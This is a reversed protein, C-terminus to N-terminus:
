LMNDLYYDDTVYASLNLDSPSEDILLPEDGTFQYLYSNDIHYSVDVPYCTEGQEFYLIPAYQEAINEDSQAVGGIAGLFLFSILLPVVILIRYVGFFNGRKFSKKRM